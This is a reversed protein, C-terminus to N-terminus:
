CALWSGPWLLLLLLLLLLGRSVQRLLAIYTAMGGIPVPASPAAAATGGGGVTATDQSASVGTPPAPPPPTAHFTTLFRRVADQMESQTYHTGWIRRTGDLETDGQSNLPALLLLLLLFATLTNACCCCHCRHFSAPCDLTDTMLTVLLLPVHRLPESDPCFSPLAM